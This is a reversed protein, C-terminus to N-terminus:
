ASGDTKLLCFFLMFEMVQELVVEELCPSGGAGPLHLQATIRFSWCISKSAGKTPQEPSPSQERLGVERGTNLIPREASQWPFGDLTIDCKCSFPKLKNDRIYFHWFVWQKGKIGHQTSKQLLNDGALEPNLALVFLILYCTTPVQYSPPPPTPHVGVDHCVDETQIFSYNRDAEYKQGFISMGPNAKTWM